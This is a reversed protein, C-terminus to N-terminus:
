VRAGKSRNVDRTVVRLNFPHHWGGKVLPIIHDVEHPVGTQASLKAADEYYNQMMMREISSLKPTLGKKRAQYERCRALHYYSPQAQAWARKYEFRSDNQRKVQEKGKPTNRYRRTRVVDGCARSCFKDCRRRPKFECSCRQCKYTSNALLEAIEKRGM